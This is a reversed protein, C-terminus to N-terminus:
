SNLHSFDPTGDKNWKMVPMEPVGTGDAQRENSKPPQVQIQGANGLYSPTEVALEALAELEALPKAKLQDETFRNRKNAMIGKVMADKKARGLKRGEEFMERDEPDATALIENFTLVKPIDKKEENIAPAPSVPPTVPTVPEEKKAALAVIQDFQAAEMTELWEVSKECFHGNKVLEQVVLKRKEDVMKKSVEQKFNPEVSDTLVPKSQEDKKAAQATVEVYNTREVVETPSGELEVKEDVIKYAQKYLKRESGPAADSPMALYIFYDDYVEQVFHVMGTQAQPPHDLADVKGQLMQRIDDHSADEQVKIGIMKAMARIINGIIKREPEEVGFEQRLLANAKGVVSSKTESILYKAGKVIEPIGALADENLANTTPNVVPLHCIEEWTEGKENGLLTREAVWKRMEDPMEALTKPPAETEQAGAHTYYGHIFSEISKNVAAWPTPEKGTYAPNRAKLLVKM